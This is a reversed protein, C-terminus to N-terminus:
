DPPASETAAAGDPAVCLEAIVRNIAEEDAGADTAFTIVNLPTAPVGRKALLARIVQATIGTAVEPARSLTQVVTMHAEWVVLM